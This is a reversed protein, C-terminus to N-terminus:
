GNDKLCCECRVCPYEPQAQEAIGQADEAYPDDDELAPLMGAAIDQTDPHVVQMIQEDQFGLARLFDEFRAAVQYITADESLTVVIEHDDNSASVFAIQGRGLAVTLDDM